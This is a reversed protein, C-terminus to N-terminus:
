ETKTERPSITFLEDLHHRYWNIGNFKHNILNLEPRRKLLNLIDELEFYNEKGKFNEYVRRIFEYDEPYDITWRHTMSYNLGTEWKVNGIRFRDKNEWIYPTTHEREFDKKANEFADRLISTHMIEVDNGDPYTAPHLTSVYDFSDRNELFYSIVKDIVSPSILPCDSPIKVIADANFMQGAKMHRDILDAPHGRFVNIGNSICYEFIPYDSEETTTAVVVTGKYEASSIREYIRYILPKGNLPLFVKGPLRKSGTRAQIVTVINYNNNV